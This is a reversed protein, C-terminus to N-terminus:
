LTIYTILPLIDIFNDIFNCGVALSGIAGLTLGMFVFGLILLLWGGIGVIISGIIWNHASRSQQLAGTYDGDRFRTEVNSAKIIAIISAIVGPLSFCVVGWIVTCIIAAALHTNPCVRRGFSYDEYSTNRSSTKGKDNSSNYEKHQAYPNPKEEGHNFRPPTTSGSISKDEKSESNRDLYLHLEPLEGARKWDTMGNCWVFTTATIGLATFSLPSIPGQQQGNSDIYFYDTM